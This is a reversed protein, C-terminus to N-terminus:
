PATAVVWKLTARFLAERPYGRGSTLARMMADPHRDRPLAVDWHDARVEALLTSGPLVADSALLQGDNRPDIAALQRATVRLPPAMDEVPAHAVISFTALGLPPPHAALWAVREHRTLSAMDGGQAPTCDFPAVHPSVSDYVPEYFDALPTGMVAGAVSVLATIKRPVGGERQLQALAHQLDPVGKSYGILVIRAVGPRAAEAQLAQALRQGNAETSARGPVPLLRISHLGLDGFQRYGEDIGHPLPHTVGDGFPLAQAGLCDGFLGTVVLVSTSAARAAFRAELDPPLTAPLMAPAGHLWPGAGQGGGAGLEAAFLTAFAAREDDVGALAVPLTVTAPQDPRYPLLAAPACAALIWAAALGAAMRAWGLMPYRTFRRM